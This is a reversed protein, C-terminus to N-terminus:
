NLAKAPLARSQLHSLSSCTIPATPTTGAANWCVSPVGLPLLEGPCSHGCGSWRLGSEPVCGCVHAANYRLREQVLHTRNLVPKRSFM